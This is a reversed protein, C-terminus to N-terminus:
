SWPDFPDDPDDLDEGNARGSQPSQLFNEDFRVDKIRAEPELYKKKMKPLKYLRDKITSFLCCAAFNPINKPIEM